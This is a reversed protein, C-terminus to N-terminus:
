TNDNIIRHKQSILCAIAIYIGLCIQLKSSFNKTIICAINSLISIYIIRDFNNNIFKINKKFKLFLKLYIFYYLAVGFLGIKLFLFIPTTHPKFFTNNTIWEDPYASIGYLNFHFPIYIDTFYSGFGSGFIISYEEIHKYYINLLEIYRTVASLSTFNLANIDIEFFSNIKWLINNIADHHIFNIFSIMIIISSFSFLLYLIKKRKTTDLLFIAIIFGIIMFLMSSRSAVSFNLLVAIMFFILSLIKHKREIIFFLFFMTGYLPILTKGSEKTVKVMNGVFDGQGAVFFSFLILFKIAIANLISELLISLENNKDDHYVLYVSLMIVLTNIFYSLDQVVVRPYIFINTFGALSGIIIIFFYSKVLFEMDRTYFIRKNQIYFLVIMFFAVIVILMNLNPVTYISSISNLLYKSIDDSVLLLIIFYKFNSKFNVCLLVFISFIMAFLSYDNGFYTLFEILITFIIVKLHIFNKIM